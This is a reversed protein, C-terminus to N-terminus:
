FSIDIIIGQAKMIQAVMDPDKVEVPIQIDDIIEIAMENLILEEGITKGDHSDLALLDVALSDNSISDDDIYNTVYCLIYINENIMEKFKNSVDETWQQCKDGKKWNNPYLKM